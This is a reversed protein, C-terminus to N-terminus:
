LCGRDAPQRSDAWRYHRVGGLRAMAARQADDRASSQAASHWQEQLGLAAGRAGPLRRLPIGCPDLLPLVEEWLVLQRLPRWVQRISWLFGEAIRGRGPIYRPLQRQSGPRRDEGVM